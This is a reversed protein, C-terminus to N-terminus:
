TKKLFIKKKEIYDWFIALFIGVFLGSFLSIVIVLFKKSQAKGALLLEFTDENKELYELTELRTKLTLYSQFIDFGLTAVGKTNKLLNILQDLDKITEQINEKEISVRSRIFNIRNAITPFKELYEKIEKPLLEFLEKNQTEISVQIQNPNKDPSFKVNTNKYPNEFLKLVSLIYDRDLLGSFKDPQSYFLKYDREFLGSAFSQIVPNIRIIFEYKDKQYISFVIGILLALVTTLIVINKRQYLISILEFLDIEDEYFLEQKEKNQTKTEM